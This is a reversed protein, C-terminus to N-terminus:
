RPGATRLESRRLRAQSEAEYETIYRAIVADAELMRRRETVEYPLLPSRVVSEWVAAMPSDADVPTSELLYWEAMVQIRSWVPAEVPPRTVIRDFDVNPEPCNGVEWLTWGNKQWVETIQSRIHAPLKGPTRHSAADESRLLVRRGLIRWDPIPTRVYALEAYDFGGLAFRLWGRYRAESPASVELAVFHDRSFHLDPSNDRPHYPQLLVSYAQIRSIHWPDALAFGNETSILPLRTSGPTTQQGLHIGPHHVRIYMEAAGSKSLPQTPGEVALYALVDRAIDHTLLDRFPYHSDILEDRQLNLPLIGDRDFVSVSPTTIHYNSRSSSWLYESPYGEDPDAKVVIGNCVLHPANTFTWHVDQYDAHQIRRWPYSLISGTSPLTVAQPALESGVTRVVKPEALCFWDWSDETFAPTEGLNPRVFRKRHEEDEKLRESAVDSLKIRIRTGVDTQVRLLQVTEADITASFEVGSDSDLHRTQVHIADGLLFAALAGVGFRGSRLVRSHGADDEFMSHWDHSRRFSAGARLFYNVVTDPHMGVGRDIVELWTDGAKDTEVAVTVDAVVDGNGHTGSPPAGRMREIERRELVADIGNQTLERVGISPRDGYLPAVLLKLLDAGAAAFNAKLPIYDVERALKQADEINSRVRRIAIGLGALGQIRGYVEGLVAWSSDLESQIGDQWSRIRLYSFVDLPLADIFIAEPDAHTNRIDRISQHAAWERQSVPSRIAKVRLVQEPAREAQVQLYDSIRLVSMLFPAHVGRFEPIDYKLELYCHQGTPAM